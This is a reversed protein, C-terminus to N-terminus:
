REPHFEIASYRRVTKSFHLQSPHYSSWVRARPLTFRFSSERAHRSRPLLPLPIPKAVLPGGWLVLKRFRTLRELGALTSTPRKRLRMRELCSWRYLPTTKEVGPTCVVDSTSPANLMGLVCAGQPRPTEKLPHPAYSEKDRLRM